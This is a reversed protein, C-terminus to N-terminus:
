NFLLFLARHVLGELSFIAQDHILVDVFFLDANV